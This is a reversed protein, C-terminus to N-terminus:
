ICMKYKSKKRYYIVINYINVQQRIDLRWWATTRRAATHGCSEGHFDQNRDGDLAKLANYSRYSSSQKATGIDDLNDTLM